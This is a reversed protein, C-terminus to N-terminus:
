HIFFYFTSDGIDTARANFNGPTLTSINLFSTDPIGTDFMKIRDQAINAWDWNSSFFFTDLTGSYETVESVFYTGNDSFIVNTALTTFGSLDTYPYYLTDYLGPGLYQYVKEINWSQNCLLDTNNSFVVGPSPTSFIRASATNNIRNFTFNFDSNSISEVQITGLGSLQITTSDNQLSYTGKQLSGDLNKVLYTNGYLFEVWALGATNSTSALWKRQVTKSLNTESPAITDSKKCSVFLVILFFYLIIKSLM